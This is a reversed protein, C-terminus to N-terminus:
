NLNSQIQSSLNELEEKTLKIKITLFKDFDNSIEIYYNGKDDKTIISKNM